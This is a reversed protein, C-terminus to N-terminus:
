TDPDGGPRIFCHRGQRRTAGFVEGVTMGLVEGYFCITEDLDPTVLAVHHFGRWSPACIGGDLQETTM